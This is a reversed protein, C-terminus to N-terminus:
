NCMFFHLNRLFLFDQYYYVSLIINICFVRLLVYSNALKWLLFHHSYMICKKKCDKDLTPVSKTQNEWENFVSLYANEKIDTTLDEQAIM